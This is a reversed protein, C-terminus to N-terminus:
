DEAKGLKGYYKSKDRLKIASDSRPNFIAAYALGQKEVWEEWPL